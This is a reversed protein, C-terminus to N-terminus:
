KRWSPMLREAMTPVHKPREFYDFAHSKPPEPNLNRLGSVLRWLYILMDACDFHGYLPTREFDNRKDDWRAAELHDALPGSDEEIEILEDDLARRLAWVQADKGDKLTPAFSIGHDNSLDYILRLSGADTDSVRMHPQPMLAKLEHSWATTGTWLEREIQGIIEAVRKSAANREAWSRQIVLKQRPADWYAFGIACLDKLAPDASVYCHAHEPSARRPVVHKKRDFEPFVARSPDQKLECFYERECIPHGRGGAQRIYKEKDAASMATNADLTRMVYARRAVADPRMVRVFDHELQDPTSSELALFAWPRRQFQPLMVARVLNELGRMFGAESLAAGDSFRGRLANPHMDVGVLKIMSGNPFYLGEAQERFSGRYVPKCDKPADASLLESLPVFIEGIDKQYATGYTLVAGPRRIAVSTLRLIWKATKGVRRGEEDVFVDDLTAGAAVVAAAYEPTQRRRNWEEFIEDTEVQHPDLKWRLNGKRWLAHALSESSAAVANL